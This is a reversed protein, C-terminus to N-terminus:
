SCAQRIEPSRFPLLEAYEVRYLYLGVGLWKLVLLTIPAQHPPTSM